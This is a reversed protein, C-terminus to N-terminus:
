FCVFHGALFFSGPAVQAAGPFACGAMKMASFRTHHQADPHIFLWRISPVPAHVQWQENAAAAHGTGGHFKGPSLTM